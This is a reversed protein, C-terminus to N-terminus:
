ADGLRLEWAIDVSDGPGITFASPRVRALMVGASAANFVGAEAIIHEGVLGTGFNASCTLTNGALVVSCANRQVEASQLSTMLDHAAIGNTGIAIHSPPSNSAQTILAALLDRGAKPIFNKGAWLPVGRRSIRVWTFLGIMLLAEDDM